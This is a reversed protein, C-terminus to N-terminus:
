APLGVIGPAAAEELAFLLLARRARALSAHRSGGGQLGGQSGGRVGGGRLWGPVRKGFSRVSETVSMCRM